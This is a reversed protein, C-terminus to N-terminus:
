VQSLTLNMEKLRLLSKKLALFYKGVEIYIYIYLSKNSNGNEKQFLLQQSKRSYTAFREPLPNRLKHAKGIISKRLNSNQKLDLQIDRDIDRIVFSARQKIDAMQFKFPNRENMEDRKIENWYGRKNKINEHYLNILEGNMNTVLDIGGVAKRNLAYYENRRKVFERIELLENTLLVQQSEEDEENDFIPSKIKYQSSIKCLDDGIKPITYKYKAITHTNQHPMFPSHPRSTSGSFSTIRSLARSMPTKPIKINGGLSSQPSHGDVKEDPIELYQKSKARKMARYKKLKRIREANKADERAELIRVKIKENWEENSFPEMKKEFSSCIMKTPMHGPSRLRFYSQQPLAEQGFQNNNINVYEKKVKVRRVTASSSM